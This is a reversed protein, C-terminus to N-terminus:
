TSALRACALFEAPLLQTRQSDGATTSTSCRRLATKAGKLGEEIEFHCKQAPIANSSDYNSLTYDHSYLKRNPDRRPHSPSDLSRSPEKLCEVAKAAESTYCGGIKRTPDRKWTLIDEGNRRLCLPNGKKDQYKTHIMEIFLKTNQFSTRCDQQKEDSVFGPWHMEVMGTEFNSIWYQFGEIGIDKQNGGMGQTQTQKNYKCKIRNTYDRIVFVGHRFKLQSLIARANRWRKIFHNGFARVQWTYKRYKKDM